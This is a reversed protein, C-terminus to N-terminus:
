FALYHGKASASVTVATSPKVAFWGSAGFAFRQETVFEAFRTGERGVAGFATGAVLERAQKSITLAIREADSKAAVPGYWDRQFGGFEDSETTIWWSSM